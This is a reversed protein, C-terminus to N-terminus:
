LDNLSLDPGVDPNVTGLFERVEDDEEDGDQLDSGPDSFDSPRSQSSLCVGQKHHLDAPDRLDLWSLDDSSVEALSLSLDESDSDEEPRLRGRQPLLLLPSAGPTHASLLPEHERLTRIEEKLESVASRIQQVEQQTHSITKTLDSSHSRYSDTVRCTHQDRRRSERSEEQLQLLEEEQRRLQTNLLRLDRGLHQLEERQLKSSLSEAHNGLSPARTFHGQLSSLELVEERRREELGGRDKLRQLEEQLTQIHSQQTQRETELDLVRQTLSKIEQRQIQLQSQLGALDSWQVGGGSPPPERQSPLRLPLAPPDLDRLRGKLPPLDASSLRERMKAVSGDAVSLISCLQRDWSM